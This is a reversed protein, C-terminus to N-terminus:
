LNEDGFDVEKEVFGGGSGYNSDGGKETTPVPDYAAGGGSGSDNNGSGSGYGKSAAFDQVREYSLTWGEQALTFFERWYAKHHEPLRAEGSEKRELYCFVSAYILFILGLFLCLKTAWIM